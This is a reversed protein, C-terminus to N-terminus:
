ELYKKDKEKLEELKEFEDTKVTHAIQRGGAIHPLVVYDAGEEYLKKAEDIDYAMVIVKVKKKAAHASKIIFINNELDSLTSVVLKARDLQVLEQIEQDMIDGFLVPIGQARLNEIVMPDFDVVIVDDPNEGLANLITEGMRTGGILVIHNSFDFESLALKERHKEGGIKPLYKEVLRYLNNNYLVIYTASLFTITCTLTILNVIDHSVYGSNFALLILILSFESLQGLGSAALFSTRQRYGLLNMTIYVILPKLLLAFISLIIAPLLIHFINGVAMEMGLFIFFIIVFFDRLPRMKAIIQFNELSNALALGAVFGGIEISFGIVPASVLAALGFVWALSVLFLIEQSRAILHIVKPLVVKGLWIILTFLIVSKLFLIILPTLFNGSTSPHFGSLLILTLIGFFDQVLSVGVSIKAYLSRSDGKESLLKMLIVTSSLTVCAAIYFSAIQSFGLSLTLMGTLMFTFFVQTIGAIVAVRGISALESFKLELGFLFLLLTIGVDALTRIVDLNHLHLLALPGVLIGTVIYAFLPPQKLLRFLIALLSALCIIITIEFFISGM